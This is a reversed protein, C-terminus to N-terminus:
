HQGSKFFWKSQEPLEMCNASASAALARVIWVRRRSHTPHSSVPAEDGAFPVTRIM